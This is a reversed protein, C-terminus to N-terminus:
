TPNASQHIKFWQQPTKRILWDIMNRFSPDILRQKLVVIGLSLGFVVSIVGVAHLPLFPNTQFAATNLWQVWILHRMLPHDHILYIGFTHSALRNILRLFRPRAFCFGVFLSLAILVSPLRNLDSFYTAKEFLEPQKLALMDIVLVSFILFVVNFLWIMVIRKKWAQYRSPTVYLRIYAGILYVSMFWILESFGFTVNLVTPVVSWLVLVSVCIWRHRHESLSQIMRNLLPTTLYLLIYTTFFWYASFLTPFLSRVFLAMDFVSLRFGYVVVLNALSFLYVNGLLLLLRKVSFSEKVLFYGSILVFVNVALKGGLSIIQVFLINLIPTSGVLSSDWQSHVAYHHSVIMIMCLM